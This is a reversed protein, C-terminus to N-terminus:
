IILHISGSQEEGPEESIKTACDIPGITLGLGQLAEALMQLHDNVFAVKELDEVFIKIGIVSKIISLDFEIRGLESFDLQILFCLGKESNSRKILFEGKNFGDELFGPIFFLWSSDERMNLLNQTQEYEIFSIARDVCDMMGKINKPNGSANLLTKKLSLLLGKLDSSLLTKWPKNTDGKLYKLIKNEWLIGSGLISRSVFLDSNDGKNNFIISPLFKRLTAIIQRGEKPLRKMNFTDSLMRYIDVLEKGTFHRSLGAPNHAGPKHINGNLVVLMTKTGVSRVQFQYKEGEMLDLHTYARFQRGKAAILVVRGAYQRIVTGKIFEGHKLGSDIRTNNDRILQVSPRVYPTLQLM